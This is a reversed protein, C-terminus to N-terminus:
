VWGSIPGEFNLFRMISLVSTGPKDEFYLVSIIWRKTLLKMPQRNVLTDLETSKDMGLSRNVIMEQRREMHTCMQMNGLSTSESTVSNGKSWSWTEPIIERSRVSTDGVQCREFFTKFSEEKRHEQIKLDCVVQFQYDHYQIMSLLIERTHQNMQIRYKMGFLNWHLPTDKTM